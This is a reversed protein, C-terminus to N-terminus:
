GAEAPGFGRFPGPYQLKMSTIRAAFRAADEVGM